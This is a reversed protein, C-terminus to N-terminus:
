APMCKVEKFTSFNAIQSVVSLELFMRLRQSMLLTQPHVPVWRYSSRSDPYFLEQTPHRVGKGKTHINKKPNALGAKMSRNLGRLALPHRFTSFLGVSVRKKKPARASVGGNVKKIYYIKGVHINETFKKKLRFMTKIM